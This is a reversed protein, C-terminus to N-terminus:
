PTATSSQWAKKFLSSLRTAEDQSVRARQGLFGELDSWFEASDLVSVGSEEGPQVPNSTTSVTPQVDQMVETAQETPNLGTEAEIAANESDPGVPEPSKATVASTQTQPPPDPAGGMVMVGLELDKTTQDVLDAVTQKSAPVPKKNQLIKIKDVSSVASEGGLYDHLQQKISAITTSPPTSPLSYTMAPNRSSKLTINITNTTSTAKEAGPAPVAAKSLDDNPKPPLPHQPHPLKPLAYPIRLEFNVPDFVYDHGYKSTKLDLTSLFTKAFSVETM